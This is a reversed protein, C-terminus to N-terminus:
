TMMVIQPLLSTWSSSGTKLGSDNALDAGGQLLTGSCNSTQWCCACSNGELQIDAVVGDSQTSTVCIRIEPVLGLTVAVWM